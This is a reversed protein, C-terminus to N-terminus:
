RQRRKSREEFDAAALGVADRFRDESFPKPVFVIDGSDVLGPWGLSGVQPSYVVISPCLRMSGLASTLLVRQKASIVGIPLIAVSYQTDYCETIFEEVATYIELNVSVKAFLQSIKERQEPPILILVRAGSIQTKERICSTAGMPM